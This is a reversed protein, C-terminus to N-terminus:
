DIIFEANSMLEIEDSVVSNGGTGVLFDKRNLKGTITFGVSSKKTMPNLAKGNYVVDLSIAKTIGHITINGDLRYIKGSVKKFSTSKFTLTPYKNADFWNESKLDSDRMEIDTDISKVDATMEIIADTFDEKKATLTATINKFRGEVHSIEFHTASFGVKSHNKDLTYINQADAIFTIAFVAITIIIKKM